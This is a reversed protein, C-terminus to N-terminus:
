YVLFDDYNYIILSGKFVNGEVILSKGYKEINVM